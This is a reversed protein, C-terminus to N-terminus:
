FAHGRSYLGVTILLVSDLTLDSIPSQYFIAQLPGLHPDCSLCLASPACPGAYPVSPPPLTLM